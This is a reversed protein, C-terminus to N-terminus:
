GLIAVISFVKAFNASVTAGFVAPVCLAFLVASLGLVVYLIVQSAVAGAKWDGEELTKCALPIFGFIFPLATLASLVSVNEAFCVGLLCLASGTLLVFYGRRLRAAQRGREKHIFSQVVCVTVFVFAIIAAISLVPNIFALKQAAGEEFLTASKLPLLFALPITANQATFQTANGGVASRIGCLLISWLSLKPDAPNDLVRVASFHGIAGGLLLFLFCGAVVSIAGFAITLKQKYAHLANQKKTLAAVEEASGDIKELAYKHAQKQRVVGLVFIAAVGLTPIISFVDISIALAACLGSFLVPLATKVPHKDDVGVSFFKFALAASLLILAFLPAYAVGHTAASFTLGSVCLMAALAFSYKASKFLRRCLLYAALIGVTVFLLSTIRLGGTAGGFIAVGPVYLATAIFNWRGDLHYIQDAYYDSGLLMNQVALMTYAEEQTFINRASKGLALSNQADLAASLTANPNAYGKTWIKSVKLPIVNGKVDCLVLENLVFDANSEVSLFTVDREEELVISVWRFNTATVGNKDSHVNAVTQEGGFNIGPVATPNTVGTRHVAVNITDGVNKFITGIHLHVSKAKAPTSSEVQFVAVNENGGRVIMSKGTSVFSGCTCAGVVFFVALLIAFLLDFIGLRKKLVAQKLNM